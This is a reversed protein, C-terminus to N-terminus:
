SLVLMIPRLQASVLQSLEGSAASSDQERMDGKMLVHANGAMVLAHHCLVMSIAPADGALGLDTTGIFTVGELEAKCGDQAPM